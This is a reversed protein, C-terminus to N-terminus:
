KVRFGSCESIYDSVGEYLGRKSSMKLAKNSMVGMCKSAEKVRHRAKGRWKELRM